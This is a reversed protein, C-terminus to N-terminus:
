LQDIINANKGVEKVPDAMLARLGLAALLFAFEVMGARMERYASEVCVLLSKAIPDSGTSSTAIDVPEDSHQYHTHLSQVNGPYNYVITRALIDFKSLIVTRPPTCDLYEGFDAQIPSSSLAWLARDLGLLAFLLHQFTAHPVPLGVAGAILGKM